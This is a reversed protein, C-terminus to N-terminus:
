FSWSIGCQIIRERYSEEDVPYQGNLLSYDTIIHFPADPFYYLRMNVSFTNNDERITFDQFNAGGQIMQYENEPPMENINYFRRMEFWGGLNIQWKDNITWYCQLAPTIQTYSEMDLSSALHEFALGTSLTVSPSIFLNLMMNVTFANDNRADYIQQFQNSMTNTSTVEDDIQVPQSFPDSESKQGNQYKNKQEPPLFTPPSDELYKIHKWSSEFIFTYRSSLITEVGAGFSFSNRRDSTVLSDRYFGITSFIYPTYRNGQKLPSISLDAVIQHNDPLAELVQYNFSSALNLKVTDYFPFSEELCIGTDAFLAGKSEPESAPNSNYGMSSNLTINACYLPSIFFLTFLCYITLLYITSCKLPLRILLNM